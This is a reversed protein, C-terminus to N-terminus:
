WWTVAEKYWESWLSGQSGIRFLWMTWRWCIVRNEYDACCKKCDSLEKQGNYCLNPIAGTLELIRKRYDLNTSM